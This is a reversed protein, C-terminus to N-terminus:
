EESQKESTARIAQKSQRATREIPVVSGDRLRRLAFRDPLEGGEPPLPLLSIPHRIVLDPRAPKVFM